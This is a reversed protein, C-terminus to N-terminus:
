FRLLLFCLAMIVTPLLAAKFLGAPSVGHL